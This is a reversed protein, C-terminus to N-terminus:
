IHILSLSFLHFNKILYLLIAGRNGYQELTSSEVGKPFTDGDLPNRWSPMIFPNKFKAMVYYYCEELTKRAMAMSITKEVKVFKKMLQLDIDTLVFSSMFLKREFVSTSKRNELDNEEEINDDDVSAM